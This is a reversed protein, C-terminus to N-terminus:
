PGWHGRVRDCKVNLLDPFNSAFSTKVPGPPLHFLGSATLIASPLLEPDAPDTLSITRQGAAGHAALGGQM